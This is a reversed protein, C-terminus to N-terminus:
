DLQLIKMMQRARIKAQEVVHKTIPNPPWFLYLKGRKTAHLIFIHGEEAWSPLPLNKYTFEVYLDTYGPAHRENIRGWWSTPGLETIHGYWKKHGIPGVIPSAGM